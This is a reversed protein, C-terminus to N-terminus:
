RMSTIRPHGRVEEELFRALIKSVAQEPDVEGEREAYDQILKYDRDDLTIRVKKAERRGYVKGSAVSPNLKYKKKELLVLDLEVLDHMARSKTSRSMDYIPFDRGCDMDQNIGRRIEGLRFSRSPYLTLLRLALAAYKTRNM